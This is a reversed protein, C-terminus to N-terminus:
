HILADIAVAIGAEKKRLWKELEGAGKKSAIVVTKLIDAVRKVACLFISDQHYQIPM